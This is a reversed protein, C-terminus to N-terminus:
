RPAQRRVGLGLLAVGLALLAGPVYRTLWLYQSRLGRVEAIREILADGATVGNWRAVAEARRGTAIHYVYDGSLCGEELKVQEGTIPEVWVRYYFQDDACRIEHGPPPKIGPYDGSGAYSETYEGRGRYAFVYTVLGDLNEAREFTLALGKVYNARLRYRTRQVGRPFVAIDGRHAEAWLAGTGPDVVNWTTYEWTIKGTEIDRIVLRDEIVMAGPRSSDPSVRQSREYKSVPDRDPLRGTRPDAYTMTGVYDSAASWGPALRQTWHRALGFRWAAAVGILVLAAIRLADNRRRM